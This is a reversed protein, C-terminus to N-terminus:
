KQFGGCYCLRYAFTTVPGLISLGAFKVFNRVYLSLTRDLLELTSIPRLPDDMSRSDGEEPPHSAEFPPIIFRTGWTEIKLGSLM